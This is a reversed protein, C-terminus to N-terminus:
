PTSSEKPSRHLLMVPKAINSLLLLMFDLVIPVLGRPPRNPWERSASRNSRARKRPLPARESSSRSSSADYPEKSSHCHSTRKQGHRRRRRRRGERSRSRKDRRHRHRCSRSTSRSRGRQNRSSPMRGISPNRLLRAWHRSQNNKRLLRGQSQVSAHNDGRSFCTKAAPLQKKGPCRM